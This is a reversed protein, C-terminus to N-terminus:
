QAVSLLMFVALGSNAKVGIKNYQYIDLEKQKIYNSTISLCVLSLYQLKQNRIVDQGTAHKQGSVSVSGFM